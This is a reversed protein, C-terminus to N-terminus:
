EVRIPVIVFPVGRRCYIRQLTFVLYNHLWRTWWTERQFSLQGAFVVAFPHERLAEEVQEQITKIIDQGIATKVDPELGCRRCLEAYRQTHENTAVLPRELEDVGKFSGADVAGVHVFVCRGFTNPFMRFIDLFTKVGLGNYGNCLVIATRGSGSEQVAGDPLRPEREVKALGEDLRTLRRAMLSYHRRICGAVVVVASTALLTIWGGEFFKITCLGILITGTLLLGVGNTVFRRLWPAGVRRQDNWHVCMGLQSLSFTLFVNISHLIVLVGVSGGTQVLVALAAMGMLLIGSQAVFRDSLTAFRSPFWRDLAMTAVVRPGDLFGTQAAIFLLATASLLSVLVFASGLWGPWRATISEFLVANLTKGEVPEVRDLLYAILLGLVTIGLSLGMLTM